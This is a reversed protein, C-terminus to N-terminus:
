VPQVCVDETSNIVVIFLTGLVILYDFQFYVCGGSKRSNIQIKLVSSVVSCALIVDFYKNIFDDDLHGFVYYAIFLCISVIACCVYLWGIVQRTGEEENKITESSPNNCVPLLTLIANGLYLLILIICIYKYKTLRAM